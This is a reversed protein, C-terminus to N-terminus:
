EKQLALRIFVAATWGQETEGLGEGTKSDFLEHLVGDKRMIEYLRLSARNKEADFGYKELTELMLWSVPMWTPGRWWGGHEYCAENYAVSPFPVSSFFYEENLLYDKIMARIKEEPLCVQAWLPLFASLSVLSRREGTKKDADFFLNKKDDYLYKIILQSLEDAKKEWLEEGENDGCLRAFFATARMQSLLYSNMDAALVEGEDFRPSDDQGTELGHPCYILGFRTMRQTLWWFNNKSLVGYMYHAFDEPLGKGGTREWLRKAAWGLLAPQAYGPRAWTSCLFQPIKGDPRMNSALQMVSDCALKESMEEYALNQFASDWMFHSPYGGRSPFSSIYGSLAGPANTLNMMLGSVAALFTRRANEDSPLREIGGACEKAWNKMALKAGDIDEPANELKKHLDPMGVNFVACALAFCLEGDKNPCVLYTDSKTLTGKKVELGFLVPAFEDPDRDDGNKSYGRLILTKGDRKEEWMEGAGDGTKEFVPVPDPSKGSVIFADTGYFCLEYEGYLSFFQSSCFNSSSRGNEGFSFLRDFVTRTKRNYHLVLSVSAEEGGFCLGFNSFMPSMSRDADTHDTQLKLLEDTIDM